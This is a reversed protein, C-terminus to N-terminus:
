ANPEENQLPHDLSQPSLTFVEYGTETIGISHEFQASLTRDRTVATWGDSLIKAGAKGLNVMPEVTFFMGAKLKVGTGKKGFNFITPETHFVRGLGHGTFERVVSMASQKATAEIAAGIDGTTAGPKAVEIGAWMADFVVKTLKRAKVSPAGIFFMRSTDGHWGDKILTVDVNVIDGDKLKRESPIGHCIVHNISICCSHRFGRYNLTAPLADNDLTFDYILKDIYQTEVGAKMEPTIKDLAAAALKGARRMGAFANGSNLVPANNNAGIQTPTDMFTDYDLIPLFYFLFAFLFAFPAPSLTQKEDM